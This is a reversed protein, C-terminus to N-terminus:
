QVNPWLCMRDIVNKQHFHVGALLRIMKEPLFTVLELPAKHQM